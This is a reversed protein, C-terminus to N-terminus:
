MYMKMKFGSIGEPNEVVIRCAIRIEGMMLWRRM